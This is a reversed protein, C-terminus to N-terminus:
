RNVEECQGACHRVHFLHISSLKLFSEAFHGVFEALAFRDLNGTVSLGQAIEGSCWGGCRHLHGIEGGREGAHRKNSGGAFANHRLREIFGYRSAPNRSTSSVRVGPVVMAEVIRRFIEGGIGM